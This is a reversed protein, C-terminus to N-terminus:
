ITPPAAVPESSNPIPAEEIPIPVEAAVNKLWDKITEAEEDTLYSGPISRESGCASPGTAQRSNSLSHRSKEKRLAELEAATPSPVAVGNGAAQDVKEAAVVVTTTANNAALATTTLSSLHDLQAEPAAGPHSAGASDVPPVAPPSPAPAPTEGPGAPPLSNRQVAGAVPVEVAPAPAVPPPSATGGDVRKLEPKELAKPEVDKATSSGCGM